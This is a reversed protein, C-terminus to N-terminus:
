QTQTQYKPQWIGINATPQRWQVEVTGNAPVTQSEGRCVADVDHLAAHHHVVHEHAVGPLLVHAADDDVLMAADLEVSSVRVELVHWRQIRAVLVFRLHVVVVADGLRLGPLKHALVDM